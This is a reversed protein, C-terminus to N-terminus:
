DQAPDDIPVPARGVIDADHALFADLDKTFLGADLPLKRDRTTDRVLVSTIVFRVGFRSAISSASDHLLRVLGGGVVGCGALAVRITRPSKPATTELLPDSGYYSSIKQVPTARSPLPFQLESASAVELQLQPTM